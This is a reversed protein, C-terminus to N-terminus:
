AANGGAARLADEAAQMEDPYGDWFGQKQGARFLGALAAISAALRSNTERAFVDQEARLCDLEQVEGWLERILKLQEPVDDGADAWGAMVAAIRHEIPTM